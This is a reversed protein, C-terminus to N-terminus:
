VHVALMFRLRKLQAEVAEKEALLRSIEDGAQLVGLYRDVVEGGLTMRAADREQEKQSVSLRTSQLKFYSTLDLLAQRAQM